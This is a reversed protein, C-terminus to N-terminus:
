EWIGEERNDRRNSYIHCLYFIEYIWSMTGQANKVFLICVRSIFNARHKTKDSIHYQRARNWFIKWQKISWLERMTMILRCLRHTAGDMLSTKDDRSDHWQTAICFKRWNERNLLLRPTAGQHIFFLISYLRGWQPTYSFDMRTSPTGGQPTDKHIQVSTQLWAGVHRM